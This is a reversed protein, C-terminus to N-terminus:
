KAVDCESLKLGIRLIRPSFRTYISFVCLVEGLTRKSCWSVCFHTELGVTKLLFRISLSMAGEQNNRMGAEGGGGRGRHKRHGDRGPRQRQGM